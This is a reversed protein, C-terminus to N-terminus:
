VSDAVWFGNSTRSGFSRIKRPVVFGLGRLIRSGGRWMVSWLESFDLEPNSSFTKQSTQFSM